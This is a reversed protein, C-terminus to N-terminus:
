SYLDYCRSDEKDKSEDWREAVSSPLSCDTKKTEPYISRCYSADSFSYKGLCDQYDVENRESITKCSNNWNISYNLESVSLCESLNELDIEQQAKEEAALQKEYDLKERELREQSFVKEKEIQNKANIAATYTYGLFIIVGIM